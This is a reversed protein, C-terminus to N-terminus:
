AVHEPYMIPDNALIHKANNLYGAYAGARDSEEVKGILGECILEITEIRTLLKEHNNVAKCIYFANAAGGDDEAIIPGSNKDFAPHRIDHGQVCPIIVRNEADIINQHSDVMWPTPTHQTM